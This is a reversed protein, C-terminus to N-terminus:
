GGIENDKDEIQNEKTEESNIKQEVQKFVKMEEISLEWSKKKEESQLPNNEKKIPEEVTKLPETKEVTELTDTERVIGIDELTKDFDPNIKTRIKYIVNNLRTKSLKVLKRFNRMLKYWPTIKPIVPLFTKPNGYEDIGKEFEMIKNSAILPSPSNYGPFMKVKEAYEMDKSCPHRLVEVTPRGLKKLIDDSLMMYKPMTKNVIDNHDLTPDCNYWEGNIKVKNWAHYERTIVIDDDIYMLQSSNSKKNKLYYDTKGISDVPGQVYECEIGKLLCANKLIDAYGACVTKGELLGNRLNRCNRSNEQSYKKDERTKPYAASYDYELYGSIREYIKGFREQEPLNEDIDGILENMTISMQIYEDLDYDEEQHSGNDYSHMRIKCSVGASKLKQALELPVDSMNNAFFISTKGEVIFKSYDDDEKLDCAPFFQNESNKENWTEFINKNYVARNGVRFDLLKGNEVFKKYYEVLEASLSVIKSKEAMYTIENFNTINTDSSLLFPYEVSNLNPFKEMIDRVNITENHRDVASFIIKSIRSGAQPTIKDFTEKELAM